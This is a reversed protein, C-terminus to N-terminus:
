LIKEPKRLEQTPSLCSCGLQPFGRNIRWLFAEDQESVDLSQYCNPFQFPTHALTQPCLEKCCLLPGKATKKLTQKAFMPSPPRDQANFLHSSLSEIDPDLLTHKRSLLPIVVAKNYGMKGQSTELHSYRIQGRWRWLDM